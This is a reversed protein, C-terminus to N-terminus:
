HNVDQLLGETNVRTFDERSQEEQLITKIQAFTTFLNTVTRIKLPKKSPFFIRKDDVVAKECNKM